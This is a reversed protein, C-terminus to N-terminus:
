VELAAPSANTNAGAASQPSTLPPPPDQLNLYRRWETNSMTIQEWQGVRRGAASWAATLTDNNLLDLKRTSIILTDAGPPTKELVGPVLDPLYDQSHGACLSLAELVEYLMSMSATGSLVVPKPGSIGLLLFSGGRRCNDYVVTAAFSVAQEVREFDEATPEEPLWLDLMMSQDQQRPREFQRVMLEGQRASTRWHIWRQSDGSRYDRLGHFDGEHPGHQQRVSHDGRVAALLRRQWAPTLQGLRPYVLFSDYQPLKEVSRILGFPFRTSVELPGLLYRGRQRLTGRYTVKVTEQPGLRNFLAHAEVPVAQPSDAPVLLDRVVVSWATVRTRTNTGEIEVLLSDGAQIAKPVLRRIRMGRTVACALLLSLCLPGLMLCFLIILLNIERLISGALLFAMVVAYYMGELCFRVKRQRKKM